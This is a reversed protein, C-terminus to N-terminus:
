YSHQSCMILLVLLLVLLTSILFSHPQSNDHAGVEASVASLITIGLQLWSMILLLKILDGGEEWPWLKILDVGGLLTQEGWGLHIDQILKTSAVTDTIWETM